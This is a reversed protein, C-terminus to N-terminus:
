EIGKLSYNYCSAQDLDCLVEEWLKFELMFAVCCKM